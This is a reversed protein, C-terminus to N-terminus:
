HTPPPAAAADPHKAKYDDIAKALTDREVCGKPCLKNLQDLQEEAADLKNLDLFLEGVYERAGRHNPDLELAKRYNEFSDKYQGLKRQCYGLYNYIDADKPAKELAKQLLPIADTCKDEKILKVADDYEAPKSQQDQHAPWNPTPSSPMSSGGGGMAFASGALTAVGIAISGAFSRMVFLGM